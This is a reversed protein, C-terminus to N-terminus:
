WRWLHTLLKLSFIINYRWRHDWVVFRTSNSIFIHDVHDNFLDFTTQELLSLSHNSDFFVPISFHFKIRPQNSFIYLITSTFLNFTNKNRKTKKRKKEAFSPRCWFVKEGWSERTVPLAGVNVILLKEGFEVPLTTGVVPTNSWSYWDGVPEVPVPQETATFPEEHGVLEVLLVITTWPPLWTTWVVAFFRSAKRELWPWGTFSSFLDVLCGQTQLFLLPLYAKTEKM